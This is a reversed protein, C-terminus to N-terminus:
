LLLIALKLLEKFDTLLLHTSLMNIIVSQIKRKVKLKSIIQDNSTYM